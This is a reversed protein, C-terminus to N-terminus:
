NPKNYIIVQIPHPLRAHPDTGVHATLRTSEGTCVVDADEDVLGAGAVTELALLQRLTDGSESEGEEKVQLNPDFAERLSYPFDTDIDPPEEKIHTITINSTKDPSLRIVEDEPSNPCCAEGDSCDDHEEQSVEGLDELEIAEVAEVEARGKREGANTTGKTENCQGESDRTGKDEAEKEQTHKTDKRRSGRGVKEGRRRLRAEHSSLSLSCSKLLM